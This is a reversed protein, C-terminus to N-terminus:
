EILHVGARQLRRRKRRYLSLGPERKNVPSLIEITTVLRNANADRIEIEPVRVPIPAPAPALISPTFPSAGAAYSPSRERVTRSHVVEVDPYLIGLKTEPATDEIWILTWEQSLRHCTKEEAIRTQHNLICRKHFSAVGIITSM